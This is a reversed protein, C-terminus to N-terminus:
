RAPDLTLKGTTRRGSLDEHARRADSLAYTEGVVTRLRGRTLLDVLERLADTIMEPKQQLYDLWFGVVAHSGQMLEVNTVHADEGSAKGYAVRRGFPALVRRSEAFPRGGAMELVVDVPEGDNADRLAGSLDEATSDVCM